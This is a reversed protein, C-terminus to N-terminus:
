RFHTNSILKCESDGDGEHCNQNLNHSGSIVQNEAHAVCPDTRATPSTGEILGAPLGGIEDVAGEAAKGVPTGDAFEAEVARANMRM